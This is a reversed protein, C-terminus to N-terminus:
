ATVDVNQGLGRARAIAARAMSLATGIEIYGPEGVPPMHEDITAECAALLEPAATHLPCMFLAPNGAALDEDAGDYEAQLICGCDAQGEPEDDQLWIYPETM